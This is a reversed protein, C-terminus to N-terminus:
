VPECRHGEEKEIKGKGEKEWERHLNLVSAFCHFLSLLYPLFSM